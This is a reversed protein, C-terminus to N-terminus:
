SRLFLSISVTLVAYVFQLEAPLQDIRFRFRGVSTDWFENKINPRMQLPTNKLSDILAASTIQCSTEHGVDKETLTVQQATATEVEESPLIGVFEDNPQEEQQSATLFRLNGTKPDQLFQQQSQQPDISFLPSTTSNALISPNRPSTLNSVHSPTTASDTLQAEALWDSHNYNDFEIKIQEKPCLQETLKMIIQLACKNYIFLTFKGPLSFLSTSM